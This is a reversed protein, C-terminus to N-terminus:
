HVENWNDGINVDVTLPISLKIANEMINKVKAAVLDADQERAEIILEDHVQLLMKGSTNALGKEVEITAIKII